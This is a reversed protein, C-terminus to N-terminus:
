QGDSDRYLPNHRSMPSPLIAQACPVRGRCPWLMVVVHGPPRRYSRSLPRRYTHCRAPRTAARARMAQGPPTDRYLSQITALRRGQTAICYLWPSRYASPEKHCSTPASRCSRYCAVRRSSPRPAPHTAICAAVRGAVLWSIAPCMGVVHGRCPRSQRLTRLSPWPTCRTSGVWNQSLTNNQTVTQSM